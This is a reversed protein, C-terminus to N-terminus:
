KSCKIGWEHCLTESWCIYTLKQKYWRTGEGDQCWLGTVHPGGDKGSLATWLFTGAPAQSIQLGHIISSPILRWQPWFDAGSLAEPRACEGVWLALVHQHNSVLGRTWIGFCRGAFVIYHQNGTPGPPSAPHWSVPVVLAGTGLRDGGPSFHKIEKVWGPCKHIAKFPM